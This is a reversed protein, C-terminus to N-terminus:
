HCEDRLMETEGLLKRMARSLRKLVTLRKDALRSRTVEFRRSEQNGREGATEYHKASHGGSHHSLAGTKRKSPKGGSESDQFGPSFREILRIEVIRESSVFIQYDDVSPTPTALAPEPPSGIRKHSSGNATRADREFQHGQERSYDGYPSMEDNEGDTEYSGSCGSCM